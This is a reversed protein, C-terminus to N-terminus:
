GGTGLAVSINEGEAKAYEEAIIELEDSLQHLGEIVEHWQECVESMKSRFADGAAGKMCSLTDEALDTLHRQARGAKGSAAKIEQASNMLAEPTVLIEDTGAMGLGM